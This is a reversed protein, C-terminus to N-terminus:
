FLSPEVFMHQGAFGDLDILRVGTLIHLMEIRSADDSIIQPGLDDDCSPAVLLYKERFSVNPKLQLSIVSKERLQKVCVSLNQNSPALYAKLRDTISINVVPPLTGDDIRQLIYADLNENVSDRIRMLLDDADLIPLTGYLIRSIHQYNELLYEQDQGIALAADLVPQMSFYDSLSAPPNDNLYKSTSDCAQQCLEALQKTGSALEYIQPILENLLKTAFDAGSLKVRKIYYHTIIPRFRSFLERDRGRMRDFFGLGNWQQTYDAIVKDDEKLQQTVQDHQQSYHLAVQQLHNVLSRVILEFTEPPYAQTLMIDKLGASLKDLLVHCYENTRSKEHKYYYDVGKDRYRTQYTSELADGFQKFWEERPKDHLDQMIHEATQEWYMEVNMWHSPKSQRDLDLTAESTLDFQKPALPLSALLDDVHRNCCEISIPNTDPRSLSLLALLYSQHLYHRVEDDPYSIGVAGFSSFIAPFEAQWVNDATKVRHLKNLYGYRSVMDLADPQQTIDYLFHALSTQTTDTYLFCHNLLQVDPYDNITNNITVLCRWAERRQQETCTALDPILGYLYSPSDYLRRIMMVAQMLQQGNAEDDFTACLHFSVECLMGERRRLENVEHVLEREELSRTPFLLTTNRHVLSAQMFQRYVPHQIRSDNYGFIVVLHKM